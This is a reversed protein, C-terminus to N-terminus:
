QVCNYGLFFTQTDREGVIISSKVEPDYVLAYHDFVSYSSHFAPFSDCLDVVSKVDEFKNYVELDVPKIFVDQSDPFLKKYIGAISSLTIRRFGFNKHLSESSLKDIAQDIENIMHLCDISEFIKKRRILENKLEITKESNHHYCIFIDPKKFKDHEFSSIKSLHVKQLKKASRSQWINKIELFRSHAHSILPNDLTKGGNLTNEKKFYNCLNKINYSIFKLNKRNCFNSVEIIEQIEQFCDNDFITKLFSCYEPHSIDTNCLFKQLKIGLDGLITEINPRSIIERVLHLIQPDSHLDMKLQMISKRIQLNYDKWVPFFM